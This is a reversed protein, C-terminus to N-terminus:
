YNAAAPISDRSRPIEQLEFNANQSGQYDSKDPIEPRTRRSGSGSKKRKSKGAKSQVKREVYVTDVKEKVEFNQPQMNKRMCKPLLYASLLVLACIIVLLLGGRREAPTLRSM